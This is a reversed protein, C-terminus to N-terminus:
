VYMATCSSSQVSRNKGFVHGKRDKKDRFWPLVITTLKVLRHFNWGKVIPRRTVSTYSNSPAILGAYIFIWGILFLSGRRYLRSPLAFLARDRRSSDRKIRTYGRGEGRREAICTFASLLRM